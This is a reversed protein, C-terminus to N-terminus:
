RKERSEERQEGLPWGKEIGYRGEQILMQKRSAALKRKPERNDRSEERKKEPALGKIHM